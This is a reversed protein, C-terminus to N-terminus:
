ATYLWRYPKVQAHQGSRVVLGPEKPQIRCRAPLSGPGSVRLATPRIPLASHGSAGFATCRVRRLHPESHL